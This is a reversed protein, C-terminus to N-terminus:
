RLCGPLVLRRGPPLSEPRGLAATQSETTHSLGADGEELAVNQKSALIQAPEKSHLLILSSKTFLEAQRGQAHNSPASASNTIAHIHIISQNTIRFTQIPSKSEVASLSYFWFPHPLDPAARNKRWCKRTSEGNGWGGGCGWM